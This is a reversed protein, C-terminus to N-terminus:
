NKQLDKLKLQLSRVGNWENEDINYVASLKDGKKLDKFDKAMGFGIADLFTKDKKLKLKLHNKDKGLIKAEMVEVQNTVFTPTPNGIGFPEFDKIKKALERNISNFELECDVKLKRNLLDKTLLKKAYNNLKNQFKELKITEITFGAAMAHGGHAVLMGEFERIAEVVNFGSISRASGKSFKTGVSIVIAPQYFEEVLRGAALGIVGEHYKEDSIFILGENSFEKAKTRVSVSIEDVIKQRKLNTKSVLQALEKARKKDKICLLRLSDIAHMLRGMSNIRPAIIYNIEYTGLNESKIGAEKILEIIGARKTKNLESLGYKAFSRNADTLPMQDAITGIATLELADNTGLERALVWAVASGAIKTTHIIAHAKPKFKAEAHHDTIIIDIGLKNAVKVANNAVIGNDVTIILKLEPSEKKIKKLTDSNLGYGEKFRDPIYPMVDTGFKHLAEWMIATATVGDADYDGYVIVKEKREKAIKIRKIAKEIEIASIGLDKLKLNVPKQPNFFDKKEKETKIERNELLIDIIDKKSNNLIQWIKKPYLKSM